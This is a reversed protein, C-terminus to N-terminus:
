RRKWAGTALGYAVLALTAIFGLMALVSVLTRSTTELSAMAYTIQSSGASPQPPSTVAAQPMGTLTGIVAPMALYLLLLGATVAASAYSLIVVVSMRRGEVMNAGLKTLRYYKWKRDQYEPVLEILRAKELQEMHDLVTPASLGLETALESQTKQRERLAKLISVRTEGGVARLVDKGVVVEEEM